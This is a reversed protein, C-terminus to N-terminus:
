LPIVSHDAMLKRYADAYTRAITDVRYLTDVVSAPVPVVETATFICFMEDKSFYRIAHGNVLEVYAIMTDGGEGISKALTVVKM